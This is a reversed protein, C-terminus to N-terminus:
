LGVGELLALLLAVVIALLGLAYFLWRLSEGRDSQTEGSKDKRRSALSM